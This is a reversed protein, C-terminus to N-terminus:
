RYIYSQLNGITNAAPSLTGSLTATQANCFSNGDVSIAGGTNGTITCSGYADCWGGAGVRIGWGTNNTFFSNTLSAFSNTYVEIGHGGNSTYQSGNSSWLRSCESICVGTSVNQSCLCNKIDASAGAYLVAGIGFQKITANELYLRGAVTLGNIASNSNGQITLNSLILVKNKQCFFGTVNNFVLVVKTKDSSNGKITILESQKHTNECMTSSAYTGDALQITVAGLLTKDNFYNLAGQLTAFPSGSTGDGTTDNGTTAVYITTNAPIIPKNLIQALGNTANWDSNVPTPFATNIASVLDAFVADQAVGGRNKIVEGIASAVMSCQRLVKNMLISRAWGTKVGSLRETDSAYVEQTLINAKNEDFQLIDNQGSM